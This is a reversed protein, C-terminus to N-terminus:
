AFDYVTTVISRACLTRTIIPEILEWKGGALRNLWGPREPWSSPMSGSRITLPSAVAGCASPLLPRSPTPGVAGGCEQDGGAVAGLPQAALGREDRQAAGGRHLGGGALGAPVPEVAAAVALGVGRQVADHDHPQAVVLGGAVVGGPAGSLALGTLLDDAADLAVDGALRRLV